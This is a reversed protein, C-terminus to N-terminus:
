RSHCRARAAAPLSLPSGKHSLFQIPRRCMIKYMTNRSLLVAITNKSQRCRQLPFLLSSVAATM